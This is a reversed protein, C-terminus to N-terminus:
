RNDQGPQVLDVAARLAVLMADLHEVATTAQTVAKRLRADDTEAAVARLPPLARNILHWQNCTADIRASWLIREVEAMRARPTAAQGTM